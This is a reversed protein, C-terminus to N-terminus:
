SPVEAISGSDVGPFLFTHLFRDAWDKGFYSVFLGHAPDREASYHDYDNQLERVEPISSISPECRAHLESYASLLGEFAEELVSGLEAPKGRAFLLYPSFFKNSDYSRMTEGPSLTPYRDHLTKLGGLYHEIYANSQRLPQFDLVAVLKDRAAFSLLDIGLLPQERDFDPYAVANLVQVSDGADLRTVRWRRLGPLTWLSSRIVANKRNDRREALDRDLPLAEGGQDRIMSLLADHHPDFM